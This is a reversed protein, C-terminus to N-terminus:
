VALNDILRTRGLRAAALLRAAAGDLPGPGLRALDSAGRAEVYDVPGFGAAELKAVAESEVADVRDGSRLREAAHRLARQLVPAVGRENHSLYANRSSLALGDEARLTPAGVIEVPLNLDATFRRIVQLQQFDKEGFVAVDPGVMNFLKSVVTAVGDFHGPRAAGDLPESVGSVHVTTAAGAPYVEEVTPAFMLDCGAEALKAADGAEDRPYAAFDENPGFQTPNVFLSAVVRDAQTRALTILSIHGAHLAGMTPVLAVREGAARWSRVTERVQAVTRAVPLPLPTEPM